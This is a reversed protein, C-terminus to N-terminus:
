NQRRARRNSPRSRHARRNPAPGVTARMTTTTTTTTTTMSAEMAQDEAACHCHEHAAHDPEVDNAVVKVRECEVRDDDHREPKNIARRCAKTNIKPHSKQQTKTPQDVNMSHDDIADDDVIVLFTKVFVTPLPKTTMTTTTNKKERNKWCINNSRIALTIM